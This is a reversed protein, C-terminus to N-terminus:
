PARFEASLSFIPSVWLRAWWGTPVTTGAYREVELQLRYRAGSQLLSRDFAPFDQIVALRKLAQSLADVHWSLGSPEEHVRWGGALLDPALTRTIVLEGIEEDPLWWSRVRALVFRWRLAVGGQQALEALAHMDGPWPVSVRLVDHTLRLALGATQAHLLGCLGFAVLWRAAKRMPKFRARAGAKCRGNRAHANAHRCEVQLCAHAAMGRLVKPGVSPPIKQRMGFLRMHKRACGAKKRRIRDHAHLLGIRAAHACAAAILQRPKRLKRAKRVACGHGRAADALEGLDGEPKKRAKGHKCARAMPKGTRPVAATGQADHQIHVALMPAHDDGVKREAAACASQLHGGKSFEHGRLAGQQEAIEIARRVAGLKPEQMLQRPKHRRGGAGHGGPRAPRRHARNIM